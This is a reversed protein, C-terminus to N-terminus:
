DQHEDSRYEQSQCEKNLRLLGEQLAPKGPQADEGNCNARDQLQRSKLAGVSSAINRTVDLAARM